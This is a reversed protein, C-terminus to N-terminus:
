KDLYRQIKKIMSILVKEIEKQAILKAKEPTKIEVFVDPFSIFDSEINLTYGISKKTQNKDDYVFEEEIEGNVRGIYPIDKEFTYYDDHVKKWKIQKM